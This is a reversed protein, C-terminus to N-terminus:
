PQEKDNDAAAAHDTRSDSNIDTLTVGNGAYNIPTAGDDNNCRGLHRRPWLRRATAPMVGNDHGSANVDVMSSRLTYAQVVVIATAAVIVFLGRGGGWMPQGRCKTFHRCVPPSPLAPRRHCSWSLGRRRHGVVVVVWTSSSGRSRHGVVVVAWSWSSVSSPLPPSAAVVSPRSPPLPFRHATAQANHQEKKFPKLLMLTTNSLGTVYFTVPTVRSSYTLAAGGGAGSAVVPTVVMGVGVGAVVVVVVVGVVVVSVVLIVVVVSARPLHWLLLLRLSPM